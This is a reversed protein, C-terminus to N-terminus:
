DGLLQLEKAALNAEARVRQSIISEGALGWGLQRFIREASGREALHCAACSGQLPHVRLPNLFDHAALTEEGAPRQTRVVGTGLDADSFSEYYGGHALRDRTWQGRSFVVRAFTWRELGAGGLFLSV